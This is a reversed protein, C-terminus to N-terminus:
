KQRYENPTCGIERRFVKCFYNPTNFGTQYAIESLTFGSQRILVAAQQLRLARIFGSPSQNTLARLKRHLQRRCIGCAKALQGVGFAEDALNQEVIATIRQLQMEDPGTIATAASHNRISPRLRQALWRIKDSSGIKPISLMIANIQQNYM